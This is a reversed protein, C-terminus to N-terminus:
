SLLSWDCNSLGEWSNLPVCNEDAIRLALGVDDRGDGSSKWGFFEMEEFKTIEDGILGRPRTDEVGTNAVELEGTNGVVEDLCSSASSM